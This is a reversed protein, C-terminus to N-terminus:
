KRRIAKRVEPRGGTNADEGWIMNGSNVRIVRLKLNKCFLIHHVEKKCPEQGPRSRNMPKADCDGM